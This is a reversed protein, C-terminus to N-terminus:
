EFGTRTTARQAITRTYNSRDCLYKVSLPIVFFPGEGVVPVNGLQKMLNSLLEANITPQPPSTASELEQEFPPPTIPEGITVLKGDATQGTIGVTGSGGSGAGFPM